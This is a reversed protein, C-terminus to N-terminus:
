VRGKRRGSSQPLDDEGLGFRERLEALLSHIATTFANDFAARAEKGEGSCRIPEGFNIWTQSRRFPLWMKPAYLKDSGVIVCPIVPAGSM